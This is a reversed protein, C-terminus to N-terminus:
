RRLYHKVSEWLSEDRPRGFVNIKQRKRYYYGHREIHVNVLFAFFVSVLTSYNYHWPLSADELVKILGAPPPPAFIQVVGVSLLVANIFASTWWHEIDELYMLREDEGYDGGRAEQSKRMATTIARVTAATFLVLWVWILVEGM